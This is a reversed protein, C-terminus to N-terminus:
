SKVLRAIAVSAEAVKEGAEPGPHALADRVCHAWADKRGTDGVM